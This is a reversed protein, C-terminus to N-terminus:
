GQIWIIIACISDSILEIGDGKLTSENTFVFELFVVRITPMRALFNYCNQLLVSDTAFM